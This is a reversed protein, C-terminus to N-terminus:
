EQIWKATLIYDQNIRTQMDFAKGHYYWGVFLYGDRKPVGPSVIVGNQEVQQSNMLTGGNTNFSVTYTKKMTTPTVKKTTTKKKTTIKKSTKVVTTTKTTTTKQDTKIEVFTNNFDEYNNCKLTTRYQYENDLRTVKVYTDKYNCKKGKDDTIDSILKKDILEQLTVTTNAGVEKPLLDNTFYKKSAKDILEIKEKMKSDEIVNTKNSKFFSILKMLLLIILIVLLLRLGIKFWNISVKNDEYM